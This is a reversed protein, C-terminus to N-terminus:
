AKGYAFWMATVPSAVNLVNRLNFGTASTGNVGFVAQGTTSVTVQVGFPSGTFARHFTIPVQYGSPSGPINVAGWELLIGGGATTETYNDGIVIFGQALKSSSVFCSALAADFAVKAANASAALDASTSAISNIVRTVGYNSDTALECSISVDNGARGLTIANGAAFNLVDGRAVNGVAGSNVSIKQQDLYKSTEMALPTMYKFADIGADIEVDSAAGGLGPESIAWYGPLGHETTYTYRVFNYDYTQGHSPSSPFDIM